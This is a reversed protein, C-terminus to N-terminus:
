EFHCGGDGLWFWFWYGLLGLLGVLVWFIDGGGCRSWHRRGARCAIVGCGGLGPPAPSATGFHRDRVTLVGPRRVPPDRSRPRDLPLVSPNAIIRNITLRYSPHFRPTTNSTTRPTAICRRISSYTLQFRNPFYMCLVPLM